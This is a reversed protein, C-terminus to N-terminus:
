IAHNLPWLVSISCRFHYPAVFICSNYIYFDISNSFFFHFEIPLSLHSAEVRVHFITSQKSPPACQIAFILQIYSKRWRQNFNVLGVVQPLQYTEEQSMLNKLKDREGDCTATEEKYRKGNCGLVLVQTILRLNWIVEYAQRLM